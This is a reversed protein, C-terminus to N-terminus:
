GWSWTNSKINGGRRWPTLLSSFVYSGTLWIWMVCRFEYSHNPIFKTGFTINDKIWFVCAFRFIFVRAPQNPQSRTYSFSTFIAFFKNINQVIKRGIEIQWLFVLLISCVHIALWLFLICRINGQWYVM